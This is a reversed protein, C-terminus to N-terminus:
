HGGLEGAAYAAARAEIETSTILGRDVVLSELARVWRRYYANPEVGSEDVMTEEVLRRHFEAWDYIGSQTMAVALGFVRGEWPEEFVLEGNRRPLAEGGTMGSIATDTLRDM